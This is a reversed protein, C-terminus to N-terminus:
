KVMIAKIFLNFLREPIIKRLFLIFKTKNGVGYRLKRNQSTAAKYIVKAVEDPNLGNEGASMIYPMARNYFNEYPGLNKEEVKANYRKELEIAAKSQKTHFCM